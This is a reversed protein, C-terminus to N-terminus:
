VAVGRPPAHVQPLRPHPPHPDGGLQDIALGREDDDIRDIPALCGARDPDELRLDRLRGLHIRVRPPPAEGVGREGGGGLEREGGGGEPPRRPPAQAFRDRAGHGDRRSLDAPQGLLSEGNRGRRCAGGRDGPLPSTGPSGAGRGAPRPPGPGPRSRRGPPPPPPPPTWSPPSGGSRLDNVPARGYRWSM